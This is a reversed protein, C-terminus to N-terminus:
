KARSPLKIVVWSEGGGKERSTSGTKQHRSGVHVVGVINIDALLVAYMGLLPTCERRMNVDCCCLECYMVTATSRGGGGACDM